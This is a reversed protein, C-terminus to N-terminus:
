GPIIAFVTGSHLDHLGTNYTHGKRIAFDDISARSQSVGISKELFNKQVRIAEKMEWLLVICAVTTAPTNVVCSTHTITASVAQKLLTAEFAKTYRKKPAM